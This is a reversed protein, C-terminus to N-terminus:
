RWPRLWRGAGYGLMAGATLLLLPRAVASALAGNGSPPSLESTGEASSIAAVVQPETNKTTANSTPAPERIARRM